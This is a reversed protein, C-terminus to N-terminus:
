ITEISLERIPQIPVGVAALVERVKVARSQSATVKVPFKVLAVKM